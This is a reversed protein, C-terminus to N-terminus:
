LLGVGVYVSRRLRLMRGQKDLNSMIKRIQNLPINQASADAKIDQMSFIRKGHSFLERLLRMGQSEFVSNSVMIARDYGFGVEIIGKM